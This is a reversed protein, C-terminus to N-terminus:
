AAGKVYQAINEKYDNYNLSMSYGRILELADAPNKLVEDDYGMRKITELRDNLDLYGLVQVGKGSNCQKIDVGFKQLIKINKMFLDPKNVFIHGNAEIIDKVTM